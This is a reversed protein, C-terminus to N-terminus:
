LELGFFLCIKINDNKRKMKNMRKSEIRLTFIKLMVFTENKM